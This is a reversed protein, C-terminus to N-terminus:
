IKDPRGKFAATIATAILSTQPREPAMALARQARTIGGFAARPDPENDGLRLLEVMAHVLADLDGPSDAGPKDPEWTTLTTEVKDLNAGVVHSVRGREYATGLPEAREAKSGRAYIERVFVKGPQHRPAREDKGIVIVELGRGAALVRLLHVIIQGGKNTEALILDCRKRVYWELATEAWVGQDMKGSADEIVYGQGDHGLGCDVLGTTDSGKTNTIAPDISVVRRALTPPMARRAADIWAQRATANAADDLMRGFREEQERQTGGIRAAMRELYQDALNDRNEDTSGRVVVDVTPDREAAALLQKLMPHRKKPTCDWVLRGYGLRCAIEFNTWAEERHAPPWSQLETAWGLQYDLGRIKGPVEPTRVYARANNPWVLQLDSAEWRPKFWPPATAILGAPGEVQIDVSSQEDQALLCITRARGAEVEQNVLNSVALTKGFGRGTLFGWTKWAGLPPRQNPRAWFAWDAAIAAQELPPLKDWLAGAARLAVERGLPELLRAARKAESDLPNM